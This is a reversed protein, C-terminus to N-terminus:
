LRPQDLADRCLQRGGSPDPQLRGPRGHLAGSGAAARRPLPSLADRGPLSLLGTRNRRQLLGAEARRSGAGGGDPFEGRPDVLAAKNKCMLESIQLLGSYDVSKSSDAAVVPEGRPPLEEAEDGPESLAGSSATGVPPQLRPLMSEGATPASVHTSAAPLASSSPRLNAWLGFAALLVIFVLQLLKKM